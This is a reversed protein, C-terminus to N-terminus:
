KLNCQNKMDEPELIKELFCGFVWLFILIEISKTNIKLPNLCKDQSGIIIIISNCCRSYHCGLMQAAYWIKRTCICVSICRLSFCVHSNRCSSAADCPFSNETELELPKSCDKLFRPRCPPPKERTAGQIYKFILLHFLMLAVIPFFIIFIKYLM